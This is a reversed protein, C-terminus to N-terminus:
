ELSPVPGSVANFLIEVPPLGAQVRQRALETRFRRMGAGAAAGGIPDQAELEVEWRSGPEPAQLHLKCGRKVTLAFATFDAVSVRTSGEFWLDSCSALLDHLRVWAQGALSCCRFGLWSLLPAVQAIARIHAEEVAWHELFLDSPRRVSALPALASLVGATAAVAAANDPVEDWRLTVVDYASPVMCSALCAAIEAVWAAAAEVQVQTAARGLHWELGSRVNLRLGPRLPLLLTEERQLTLFGFELLEWACRSVDVETELRMDRVSLERLSPMDALLQVEDQLLTSFPLRLTALRPLQSILQVADRALEGRISIELERLPAPLLTLASFFSSAPEPAHHATIRQVSLSLRLRSMSPFTTALAEILTRSASDLQAASLLPATGTIM